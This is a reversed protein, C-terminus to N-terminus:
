VGKEWGPGRSPGMGAASPCLEWRSLLNGAAPIVEARRIAKKGEGPVDRCLFVKVHRSISLQPDPLLPCSPHASAVQPSKPLTQWLFLRPPDPSARCATPCPPQANQIPEQLLISSPFMNGESLSSQKTTHQWCEWCSPLLLAGSLPASATGPEMGRM